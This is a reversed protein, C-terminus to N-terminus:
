PQDTIMVPLQDSTIENWAMLRATRFERMGDETGWRDQRMLREMLGNERDEFEDMMAQDKRQISAALEGSKKLQRYLAPQQDELWREISRLRVPSLPPIM